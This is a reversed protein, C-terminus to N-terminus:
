FDMVFRMTGRVMRLQRALRHRDTAAGREVPMFDCVEGVGDPTM